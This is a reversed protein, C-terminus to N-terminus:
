KSIKGEQIELLATVVPTHDGKVLPTAGNRLERARKSAAIVMEYPNGFVRACKATDEAVPLSLKAARYPVEVAFKQKKM